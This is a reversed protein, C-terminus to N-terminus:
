QEDLIMNDILRVGGFVVALSLLLPRESPQSLEELTAADAISIYEVQARSESHLTTQLVGRLVEPHREGALYFMRASSLARHLVGAAARDEPSLRVNRSSLALGDVDRLTPCVVVELPQNLDRVMQRIVAVQQADKQGFYARHPQVINFLKTVVTAVGVFHGPRHAGELGQSIAEVTVYTQFGPPYMEDASPLLVLDVGSNQLLHLDHEEDRPYANLDQANNFQTPNVFISVATFANERRSADVLSLHGDHLYGMTPVFGLSGELNARARRFDAIRHYINM